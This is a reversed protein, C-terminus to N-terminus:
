NCLEENETKGEKHRKKKCGYIRKLVRKEFLNL